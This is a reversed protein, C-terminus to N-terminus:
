PWEAAPRATSRKGRDGPGGRRVGVETVELWALPDDRHADFGASVLIADPQFAEVRPLITERWAAVFGDDGTEAPLPVNM